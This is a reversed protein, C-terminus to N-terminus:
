GFYQKMQAETLHNSHRFLHPYVRKRIGAKIILKEITEKAVGYTMLRNRSNTGLSVWLPSDTSSGLPHNEIWQGLKPASAIVRVRRQGTKGNVLICAGYNDFQMHKIQLTLIEGIRCGTEDLVLIFAKDRLTEAAAVIRMAEENTLLEEPLKIRSSEHAKIWRVEEPYDETGRLWRYFTKLIVKFDRKTWGSCGGSEIRQLIDEIDRRTAQRFPMGLFITITHLTNLYKDVRSKSYGRVILSRYFEDIKQKNESCTASDHIRRLSGAIRQDYKYVAEKLDM